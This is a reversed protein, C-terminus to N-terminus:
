LVFIQFNEFGFESIRIDVLCGLILKDVIEILYSKVLERIRSLFLKIRHIPKGFAHMNMCKKSLLYLFMKFRLSVYM